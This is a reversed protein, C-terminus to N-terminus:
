TNDDKIAEVGGFIEARNSIDILHERTIGEQALVEADSANILLTDALPGLPDLMGLENTDYFIAM